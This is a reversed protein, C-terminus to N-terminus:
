VLMLSSKRKDRKSRKGKSRQVGGFLDEDSKKKRLLFMGDKEEMEKATELFFDLFIFNM